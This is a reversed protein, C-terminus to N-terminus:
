AAIQDEGDIVFENDSFIREKKAIEGALETYANLEKDTVQNEPKAHIADAMEKLRIRKLELQKLDYETPTSINQEVKPQDEESRPKEGNM